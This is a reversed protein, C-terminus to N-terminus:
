ISGTVGPSSLYQPDLPLHSRRCSKSANSSQRGNGRGQVPDVGGCTVPREGPIRTEAAARSHSLNSASDNMIDNGEKGEGGWGDRGGRRRREEM